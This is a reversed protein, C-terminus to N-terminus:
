FYYDFQNERRSFRLVSWIAAPENPTLSVQAHAGKWLAREGRLLEHVQYTEDPGIGLESLPVELLADQPSHPDLSVAILIQNSRDPTSKGYFIVRDNDARHFRLNRYLRLAANEKRIRNIREVFPRINGPRERDWRVLQYKESDHYEETGPVGRAECLEYGSYIGYSCSLTAALALRIKFAPPGGQQLFESLIDPTNPWLNGRMYEVEPGQTLERLYQEIEFKFTRWTFYTYSQSFGAKALAKMVKPRTFAEALLVVDPHLDQVERILWSWFSLPKTHPNDVRFVRVGQEIWFLVVSKLEAWLSERAPGLFDFNVIDEYRKPPNEATKLTGDPRWSFWEPHEKVYPHDPSLQFALDLAVELGQREASEVFARFDKLTGLQPHVSKHGGEASGIAWPSGPDDPGTRLANNRGKRGTRGIPHIPPLYVVDFGLEAVYGLMAEADKFTGHRGQEAAASRPFFEYWAGTIARPRDVYIQLERDYRTAISRDPHRSAAELIAGDLATSLAAAPPESLLIKEAQSLRRGDPGSGARQAADHLLAAGEILESTVSQGAAVKRQVEGVWTRFADPWAEITYLYRGNQALPFEGEFRDNSLPRMASESWQQSAQAVPATQRWRVVAAIVDHGEKFIDAQVRFLDGVVRKVAWRGCDLEPEVAEIVMSGIRKAM